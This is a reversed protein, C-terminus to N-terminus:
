KKKPTLAAKKKPTLMGKGKKPVPKDVPKEFVNGTKSRTTIVKELADAQMQSNIRVGNKDKLLSKYASQMSVSHMSKRALEAVDAAYTPSSPDMALFKTSILSHRIYRIGMKPENRLFPIEKFLDMLYGRLKSGEIPFLTKSKDSPPKLRMILNTLPKSLDFRIAAAKATKYKALHVVATNKKRNLLLYNTREDTIDSEDYAITLALDDRGIIEEYLQVLLSPFSEEGYKLIVSDRIDNWIFFETSQSVQLQGSKALSSWENYKADLKNYIAKNPVILNGLPRWKKSLMLIRSLFRAKSGNSKWAAFNDITYILTEANNLLPTLDATTDYPKIGYIQYLKEGVKSYVVIETESLPKSGDGKQPEDKLVTLVYNRLEQGTLATNDTNYLQVKPQTRKKVINIVTPEDVPEESTRYIIKEKMPAIIEGDENIEIDYMKLTDPKPNRTGAALAKLLKNRQITWKNKEYSANKYDNLERQSLMALPKSM